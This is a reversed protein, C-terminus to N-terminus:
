KLRPFPDLRKNDRLNRIEEYLYDYRDFTTNHHMETALPVAVNGTQFVL